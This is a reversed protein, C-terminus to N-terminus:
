KENEQEKAAEKELLFQKAEDKMDVYQNKETMIKYIENKSQKVKPTTYEIMIGSYNNKEYIKKLTDNKLLKEAIEKSKKDM